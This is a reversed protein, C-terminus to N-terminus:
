HDEGAKEGNPTLLYWEAGNAEIDHGRTHGPSHDASFYYLPWGNHTVQVEGDKRQITGILEPKLNDHGEPEGETILPPWATACRDYCTSQARTGENGQVDAEFIYLAMGEQDVLYRGHEEHEAVHLLVPGGPQDQPQHAAATTASLAVACIAGTLTRRSM